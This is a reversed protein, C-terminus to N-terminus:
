NIHVAITQHHFTDQHQTRRLHSKEFGTVYQTKVTPLQQTCHVTCM